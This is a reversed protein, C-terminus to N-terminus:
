PCGAAFKAQFCGFDAITFANDNNCDAYTNGSAFQSQFCGFDAVTLTQSDNCDAYCACGWRAWGLSVGGGATTFMGGAILEGNYNVLANVDPNQWPGLGSGLPQLMTGNWRAIGNFGNVRGLVLEGRYVLLADPVASVGMSLQLWSAGNWRSMEGTPLFAILEGNYVAVDWAAYPLGAGMASWSAGNWRAVRNATQGGIASFSGTAVLAGGHVALATIHQGGPIHVTVGGALSSWTQTDGDWSAIRNVLLAGAHTFLGGAVLDGDYEALATVPYGYEGVLGPGLTRWQGGDWRAILSAPVGGVHTFHGALVPDGRYNRLILGTGSHPGVAPHYLVVGTGLATWGAGDRRVVNFIQNQPTMFRGAAVLEGEDLALATIEGDLAGGGSAVASWQGSAQDWVAANRAPAGGASWFKGSAVVRDQFVHLISVHDQDGSGGIGAGLASWAAGDWRAIDNAAQGGALDFDGGAYVAGAHVQLARVPGGVGAGVTSWAAGDWRAINQAAQGGASTFEGAALLGANHVVLANVGEGAGGIGAGLAQWSVGDWRAINAVAQGGAATFLGAAVLQGQFVALANVGGTFESVSIGAGLAQWASGNWRAINNIPQGQALDFRGAAILEGQFEAFAKVFITSDGPDGHPGQGLAVWSLGDFRFVISGSYLYAHPSTTGGAILQGNYHTLTTLTVPQSVWDFGDTWAGGDWEAFPGARVDGVGIFGGGVLLRPPLPGPGDPDWTTMAGPVADFGPVTPGALWEPQCQALAGSGVGITVGLVSLRARM